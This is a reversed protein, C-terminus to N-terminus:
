ADEAKSVARKLAVLKTRAEDLKAHKVKDLIAAHETAYDLPTLYLQNGKVDADVRELAKQVSELDDVLKKLQLFSKRADKDNGQTLFTTVEKAKNLDVGIEKQQAHHLLAKVRDNIEILPARATKVAEFLTDLRDEATDLDDNDLLRYIADHEADI